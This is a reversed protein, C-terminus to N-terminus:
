ATTIIARGSIRDIDSDIIVNNIGGFDTIAVNSVVLRILGVDTFNRVNFTQTEGDALEFPGQSTFTGGFDPGETPTFQHM